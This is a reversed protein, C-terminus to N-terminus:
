GELELTSIEMISRAEDGVLFTRLGVGRVPDGKGGGGTWDTLRGLRARDDGHRNTAHYLAPVFVEGDPGDRVVMRCRRWLLDRPRQPPHFEVLEVRELPIWFYKGTSTLVELVSATLDDLDRLDDFSDGDCRGALHRRAAEAGDLLRAAQRQNGDRIHISAEFRRKLDDGPAEVVEPVRGNEFFDQRAREARLLQRFLALGVELEPSQDGLIDLHNDARDLEGAFCLLECLLGRTSLDKPRVRVAQSAADIAEALAGAQFHEAATMTM